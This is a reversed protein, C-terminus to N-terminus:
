GREKVFKGREVTTSINGGLAILYKGRKIEEVTGRQRTNLLRVKDGIAVPEALQKKLKAAKKRNEQRVEKKQEKKVDSATDGIFKIFRDVIESKAKKSRAKLYSAAMKELREGWKLKSVQSEMVEKQRELKRELEAIKGTHKDKLASLEELRDHMEERAKALANKEKQLAVLLKDIGVTKSDLKQRARKILQGSIGVRQAVEFTYSSGPTGINLVYEPSFTKSNFAMSGNIVGPLNDALSKISNYHTTFVGLSKAKNIEELFVQALAAGLEPDSGSGFEDILILSDFLSERLITSMKTLKSSYTSLENEISQADGIDVMLSNFWGFTSRPNVPVLLGSQIMLQLLGVTKLTISKGGANPGSIVLIRQKQNLFINLPIVPKRKQRNFFRLVPNIGQIMDLEPKDSLNPLVAKEDFAFRAKAHIFDVTRMVRAFDMLEARHEALYRTLEKLIRIIERHEEDLLMTIDNNVEITEQPEVFILSHKASRGHFIGGVRSKYSANIALVRRDEYVSESTEGMFGAKEYKKVVKYFIRDAAARKKTLQHRINALEDSASTKVEGREDFVRDIEKPIDKNPLVDLFYRLVHPAIEKQNHFFRHLNNYSEVLEKVQLFDDAELQANRVKLRLLLADVEAAALAPIPTQNQYLALVENVEVLAKQAQPANGFPRLKQLRERAKSTVAKAALRQRIVDFELETFLADPYTNM